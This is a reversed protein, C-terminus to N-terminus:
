LRPETRQVKPRPWQRPPLSTTGRKLSLTTWRFFATILNEHLHHVGQQPVREQLNCHGSFSRQVQVPANDARFCIAQLKWWMSTQIWYLGPDVLGGTKHTNPVVCRIFHPETKYLTSMLDDLQGKFYSSVTKGGKGKKRSENPDAQLPQGPHDKFCEIALANSGEKIM